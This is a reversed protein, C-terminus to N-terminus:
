QPSVKNDGTNRCSSCRGALLLTSTVMAVTSVMVFMLTAGMIDTLMDIRNAAEAQALENDTQLKASNAIFDNNRNADLTHSDRYLGGICTKYKSCESHDTHSQCEVCVHNICKGEWLTIAGTTDASYDFLYERCSHHDGSDGHLFHYDASDMSPSQGTHDYAGCPELLGKKKQCTGHKVIQAEAWALEAGKAYKGDKYNSIVSDVLFCYQGAGCDCDKSCEKCVPNNPDMMTNCMTFRDPDSNASARVSLSAKTAGGQFNRTICQEDVTCEGGFYSASSTLRVELTNDVVPREWSDEVNCYSEDFELRVDICRRKFYPSPIAHRTFWKGGTGSFKPYNLEAHYTSSLSSDTSEGWIIKVRGAGRLVEVDFDVRRWYDHKDPCVRFRASDHEDTYRTVNLVVSSDTIDPFEKVSWSVTAGTVVSFLDSQAAFPKGTVNIFSDTGGPYYDSTVHLPARFNFGRYDSDLRSHTFTYTRNVVTLKTKRNIISDQTADATLGHLLPSKVVGIYDYRLGMTSSRSEYRLNGGWVNTDSGPVVKPSTITVRRGRPPAEAQVFPKSTDSRKFDTSTDADWYVADHGSTELFLNYHDTFNFSNPITGDATLDDESIVAVAKTSTASARDDFVRVTLPTLGTFVHTGTRALSVGTVGGGEITFTTDLPYKDGVNTPEEFEKGNMERLLWATDDMALVCGEGAEEYEFLLNTNEMDKGNTSDKKTLRDKGRANVSIKVKEVNEHFWGGDTVEFGSIYKYTSDGGKGDSFTPKVKPATFQSSDRYNDSGRQTTDDFAVNLFPLKSSDYTGWEKCSQPDERKHKVAKLKKGCVFFQGHKNANTKDAMRDAECTKWAAASVEVGTVGGDADLTLTGIPVGNPNYAYTRERDPSCCLKHYDKYGSGKELVVVRGLLGQANGGSGGNTRHVLASQQLKPFEIKFNSPSLKNYGKGANTIEAKVIGNTMTLDFEAAESADSELAIYKTTEGSAAAKVRPYDVENDVSSAYYYRGPYEIVVKSIKYKTDTGIIDACGVEEFEFSCKADDLSSVTYSSSDLHLGDLEYLLDFQPNATCTPTMVPVATATIEGTGANAVTITPQKTWLNEYKGKYKGANKIKIGTLEGNDSVEAELEAATVQTMESPVTLTVTPKSSSDYGSGFKTMRISTVSYHDLVQGEWTNGKVVWDDTGDLTAKTVSGDSMTLSADKWEAASNPKVQYILDSSCGEGGFLVRIGIYKGKKDDPRREVTCTPKTSWEQDPITSEDVGSISASPNMNLIFPKTDVQARKNLYEFTLSNDGLAKKPDAFDKYPAKVYIPDVLNWLGEDMVTMKVTIEDRIDKRRGSWKNVMPFVKAVSGRHTHIEMPVDQVFHAEDQFGFAFLSFKTHHQNLFKVEKSRCTTQSTQTYAFRFSHYNCVCKAKSTDTCPLSEDVIDVCDAEVVHYSNPVLNAPATYIASPIFAERTATYGKGGDLIDISDIIGKKDDDVLAWNIRFSAGSGIADDNTGGNKVRVVSIKTTAAVDYKSTGSHSQLVEVGTIAGDADVSTIIGHFGAGTGTTAQKIGLKLTDGPLKASNFVVVEVQEFENWNGHGLYHTGTKFDLTSSDVRVIASQTLTNGFSVDICPSEPADKQPTTFLIPVLTENNKWHRCQKASNPSVLMPNGRTYGNVDGNGVLERNHYSRYTGKSSRHWGKSLASTFLLFILGLRM